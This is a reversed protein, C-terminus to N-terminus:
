VCVRGGDRRMKSIALEAEEIQSDGVIDVVGKRCYRKYRGDVRPRCGIM